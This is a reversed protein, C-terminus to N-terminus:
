NKLVNSVYEKSLIDYLENATPDTEALVKSVFENDEGGNWIKVYTGDAYGHDQRFSNLVNKGLYIKYIEDTFGLTDIIDILCSVSATFAPTDSTAYNMLSKCTGIVNCNTKGNSSMANIFDVERLDELAWSAMFHLIDVIEMKANELDHPADIDKWHKWNFSDLLESAEMAVCLKFDIPRGKTTFGNKWDPGSTRINLQDQLNLIEKAQEETM